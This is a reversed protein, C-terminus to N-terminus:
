GLNDLDRRALQAASSGPHKSLVEQYLQRAKDPNGLRREVDALKYLADAEKRHGQFNSIVQAFARGASDLDSQALHVEGLWYQANGAYTSDPYRRLFANFAMAAKEFDRTKVLDFAAEYLLKEREPDAPASQSAGDPRNGGAQPQAAPPNVAPGQNTPPQVTALPDDPSTNGAGNRSPATTGGTLSTLRRDLDEYQDLQNQELQKLRHEQEELLGRLMSVEQQLQDLQQMLQGELSLRGGSTAPAPTAPQSPRAGGSSGDIIPAQAAAMLPSLLCVFAVSRFGKM